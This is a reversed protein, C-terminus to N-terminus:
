RVIGTTRRCAIREISIEQSIQIHIAAAITKNADHLITDVDVLNEMCRPHGDLLIGQCTNIQRLRFNNPCYSPTSQHFLLNLNTEEAIIATM